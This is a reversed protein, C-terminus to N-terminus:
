SAPAFWGHFGLPVSRPLRAQALPGDEFRGADFVSMVTQGAKWDLATGVVWGDLEGSGGPRPVFRHEEVLHHPGYRWSATRGRKADFRAVSDFLNAENRVGQHAFWTYRPADTRTDFVPFDVAGLGTDAIRGKGSALDLELRVLQADLGGPKGPAGRMMAEFEDNTSAGDAFWCALMEIRSGREIAAGFHYALGAPLEFRRIRSRDAKDIVLAVSGAEPTWRQSEFFSEGADRDAFMPAVVVVLHRASIAFSHVYGRNPMDVLDFSALTGDAGIRWLALKPQELYAIAGFNWLSGDTDPQPHASFAVHALDERWTKPGRSALTDRDLEWASGGEWLAYLRGAHEIVATNAANFDDATRMAVADPVTTGAAMVVFKGAASERVYKDTGVFRAEHTVGGGGIRWAHVLGDGDFWHHYRFGAREFRAPGNRYFTGALGEPLKGSVHLAQRPLSEASVNEWGALWPQTPRAAHFGDFVPNGLALGPALAAAGAGLGCLEIFRRRSLTM